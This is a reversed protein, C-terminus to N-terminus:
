VTSNAHILSRVATIIPGAGDGPQWYLSLVLKGDLRQLEKRFRMGNTIFLVKGFSFIKLRAIIQDPGCEDESSDIYVPILRPLGAEIWADPAAAESAEIASFPAIHWLADVVFQQYANRPRLQSSRSVARTDIYHGATLSRAPVLTGSRFDNLDAVGNFILLPPGYPNVEQALFNRSNMLGIPLLPGDLRTAQYRSIPVFGDTVLPRAWTMTIRLGANATNYKRGRGTVELGTFSIGYNSFQGSLSERIARLAEIDEGLMSTTLAYMLASHVQPLSGPRETRRVWNYNYSAQRLLDQRGAKSIKPQSARRFNDNALQWREDVKLDQSYRQVVSTLPVADLELSRPAYEIAKPKLFRSAATDIGGDVLRSTAAGILATFVAGIVDM